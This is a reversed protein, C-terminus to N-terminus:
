MHFTKLLSRIYIRCSYNLLGSLLLEVYRSLPFMPTVCVTELFGTVETGSRRHSPTLVASLQSHGYLTDSHRSLTVGDEQPQYSLQFGAKGLRCKWPKVPPSIRKIMGAKLDDVSKKIETRSKAETEESSTEREQVSGLVGCSRQYGLQDHIQRCHLLGPNSGQTPFIGQLLSHSGVGTNKSPSDRRLSAGSPSCGM